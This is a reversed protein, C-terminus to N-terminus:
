RLGHIAELAYVVPIEGTNFPIEVSVTTGKGPASHIDLRQQDGYFVRL